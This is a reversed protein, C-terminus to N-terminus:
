MKCLLSSDVILFNIFPAKLSTISSHLFCELRASPHELGQGDYGHPLFVVLGAQRLWKAEGNRLLQDFIVQTGNSFDGFHAECM